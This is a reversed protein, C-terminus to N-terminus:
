FVCKIPNIFLYTDGLTYECIQLKLPVFNHLHDFTGLYKLVLETCVSSQSKRKHVSGVLRYLRDILSTVFAQQKHAIDCPTV